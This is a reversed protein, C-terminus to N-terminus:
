FHNKGLRKKEERSQARCGPTYTPARAPSGGRGGGKSFRTKGLCDELGQDRSVTLARAPLLTGFPRGGKFFFVFFSLSGKVDDAINAVILFTAISRDGAVPFAIGVGGMRTSVM